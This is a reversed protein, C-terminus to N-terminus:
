ACGRTDSVLYYVRGTGDCREQLVVFAPRALEAFGVGLEQRRKGVTLRRGDEPEAAGVRALRFGGDEAGVGAGAEHVAVDGVDDRRGVDRRRGHGLIGDVREFDLVDHEAAVGAAAAALGRQAVGFDALDVGPEHGQPLQSQLVRRLELLELTGGLARAHSLQIDHIADLNEPLIRIHHLPDFLSSQSHM